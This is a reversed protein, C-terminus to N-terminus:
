GGLACAAAEIAVLPLQVLLAAVPGHGAVVAACFAEYGMHNCVTALMTPIELFWQVVDFHGNASALLLGSQGSHDCHHVDIAGTHVLAKLVSVHGRACASLFPTRGCKDLAHLSHSAYALLEHVVAAHGGACAVHLATEGDLNAHALDMRRKTLFTRVMHKNGAASALVLPTDGTPTACNVDVNYLIALVETSQTHGRVVAHHLGTRGTQDKYNVDARAQALVYLVAAFGRQCAVLFPADGAHCPTHVSAGAGLLTTVTEFLDQEDKATKLAYLLPTEGTNCVAAISGLLGSRRSHGTWAAVHLLTNGNTPNAHAVNTVPLLLQIVPVNQSTVARMLTNEGRHDMADPDAGHALLLAVIEASAEACRLLVTSGQTDRLHVNATHALLLETRQVDNTTAALMLATQGLHDQADIAAGFQLLQEAKETSAALMLATPGASDTTNITDSNAALADIAADPESALHAQLYAARIAMSKNRNADGRTAALLTRDQEELKPSMTATHLMKRQLM